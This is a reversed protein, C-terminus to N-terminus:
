LYQTWHGTEYYPNEGIHMLTQLTERKACEATKDPSHVLLEVWPRFTAVFKAIGSLFLMMLRCLTKSKQGSVGRFAVIPRANMTAAVEAMLTVLVEHTLNKVDALM